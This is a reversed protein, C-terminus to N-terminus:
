PLTLTALRADAQPSSSQDAIVSGASALADKRAAIDAALAAKEAPTLNGSTLQREKYTIRAQEKQTARAQQTSPIQQLTDSIAQPQPQPTNSIRQAAEEIARASPQTTTQPGQPQGADPNSWDVFPAGSTTEPQETDGGGFLDALIKASVPDAPPIPRTPTPPPGDKGGASQSPAGGAAPESENNTQAGSQPQEAGANGPPSTPPNLQGFADDANQATQSGAASEAGQAAGTSGDSANGEASGQQTSDPAGGGANGSPGGTTVDGAIEITEGQSGGTQPGEDGTGDNGAQAGPDGIVNLDGLIDFVNRSQGGGGGSQGAADPANVDGAVSVNGGGSAGEQGEQGAGGAGAGDAAAQQERAHYDAVMAAFVAEELAKLEPDSKAEESPEYEFEIDQADPTWEGVVAYVKKAMEKSIHRQSQAPLIDQPDEEIPQGDPTTVNGEGWDKPDYKKTNGGREICAQYEEETQMTDCSSQAKATLPLAASLLLSIFLTRMAIRKSHSHQLMFGGRQVASTYPEAMM